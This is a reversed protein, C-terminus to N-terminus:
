RDLSALRRLSHCSCPDIFPKAGAKAAVRSRFPLKSVVSVLACISCFLHIPLFGSRQQWNGAFNEKPQKLAVNEKQAEM